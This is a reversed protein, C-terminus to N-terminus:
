YLSYHINKLIIFNNINALYGLGALYEHQLNIECGLYKVTDLKLLRVTDASKQTFQGPFQIGHFDPSIELNKQQIKKFNLQM